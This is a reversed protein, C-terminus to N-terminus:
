KYFIKGVVRVDLYEKAVDSPSAAFQHRAALLQGIQRASDGGLYFKTYYSSDSTYLDLELPKAPLVLQKIPVKAQRMQNTLAVIFSASDSSLVRQGIQVSFGSQDVVRPLSAAATLQSQREVAMGKSDVVLGEGQGELVFAPQAIQLHVVPTQAFFPLDVRVASIEPYKTQLYKAVHTEDFTMKNRNGFSKFQSSAAAQYVSASHYTSDSAEVKVNPNIVLSYGLCFIIVALAITDASKILRKKAKPVSRSAFPSPRNSGSGSRYYTLPAKGAKPDDRKIPMRPRM